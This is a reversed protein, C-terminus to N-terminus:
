PVEIKDILSCLQLLHVFFENFLILPDLCPLTSQLLEKHCLHFTAMLYAKM